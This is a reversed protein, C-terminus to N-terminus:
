KVEFESASRDSVTKERRRNWWAVIPGRVDNGGSFSVASSNALHPASSAGEAIRQLRERIERIWEQRKEPQLHITEDLNKSLCTEEIEM